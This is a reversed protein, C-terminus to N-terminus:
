RSRGSTTTAGGGHVLLLPPGDGLELVQTEGRSWRVRRVRTDPAFRALLAAQAQELERDLETGV